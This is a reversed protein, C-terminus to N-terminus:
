VKRRPGKLKKRYRRKQMTNRCKPSCYEAQYAESLFFTRCTLCQHLLNGAIDEMAMFAMASLLSGAIWHQRYSGDRERSLYPVGYSALHALRLAGAAPANRNAPANIAELGNVLLWAALVFESVPESYMDWFEQTAPHPYPFTVREGYPVDPFHDAWSKDLPEEEIVSGNLNMMLAAPRRADPPLDAESV